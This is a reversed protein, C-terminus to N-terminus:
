TPPCERWEGTIARKPTITAPFVFRFAHVEPAKGPPGHLIRVRLAFSAVIDRPRHVFRTTATETLKAKATTPSLERDVADADVFAALLPEPNVTADNVFSKAAIFVSV